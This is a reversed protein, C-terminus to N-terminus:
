IPFAKTFINALQLQTPVYTVVLDGHSVRERVFHYDEEVHKNRKHLVSNATIYTAFINDCLVKVLDRLLIGLEVFVYRIWLTEYINYAIARYKAEPSCKSVPQLSSKLARLSCILAWSSLM